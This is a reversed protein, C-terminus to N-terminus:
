DVRCDGKVRATRWGNLGVGLAHFKKFKKDFYKINMSEFSRDDRQDGRSVLFIAYDSEYSITMYDDSNVKFFSNGKREYSFERVKDKYEYNCTWIEANVNSTILFLVGLCIIKM